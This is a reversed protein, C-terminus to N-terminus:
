FVNCLHTYIRTTATFHAASTLALLQLAMSLCAWNDTWLKLTSPARYLHEQAQHFESECVQVLNFDREVLGLGVLGGLCSM